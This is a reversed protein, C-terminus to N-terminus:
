ALLQNLEVDVSTLIQKFIIVQEPTLTQVLSDNITPLRIVLQRYKQEGLKTLKIIKVRRDTPSQEKSLYGLKILRAVGRTINSPNLHILQFLDDQSLQGKDGVKMLYFYTSSTVGLDKLQENLYQKVKHSVTNIASIYTDLEELQTM